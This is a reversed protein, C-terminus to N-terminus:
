KKLKIIDIPETFIYTQEMNGNYKYTSRNWDPGIGYLLSKVSTKNWITFTLNNNGDPVISQISYSGVFQEIPDTGARWFLDVLGFSGKYDTVTTNLYNESNRAKKYWFERAQNVRYADQFSFAVPNNNFTRHEPGKGRDWEWVMNIATSLRSPWNATITVEPLTNGDSPYHNFTGDSNYNTQLGDFSITSFNYGLYIEGAKTTAQSTANEDWYISGDSRQVWDEGGRRRWARPIRSGCPTTSRIYM